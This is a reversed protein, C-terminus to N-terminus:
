APPQPRATQRRSASRSRPLRLTALMGLGLLGVLDLAGGGGRPPTPAPTPTTVSLVASAQTNGSSDSCSLTYTDTGADTPSVSLTGSTAENGNWAGSATCTTANTSSWSLTSNQGLTVSAPNVAITVTPVPPPSNVTLMASANASGGAGTCSLTYTDTGAASPTVSLTGSTAEGGTWAGSATCATANTSSWTLTASQGAVISMPNVGITVTPVPPPPSNVTLMASANASGGAGTCSLTYTDTGAATPTVSLTGGTAESGTWAGSATCVTANTSVWTLAANQGLVISTPNVGLTVTPPPNGNPTVTLTAAASVTANTIPDLCTLTYTYTGVAAPTVTQTGDVAVGGSWAGSSTCSTSQGSAWTLTASQGLMIRAPAVAITVPSIKVAFADTSGGYSGQIPNLTPFNSGASGAIYINGTTDVAIGNAVDTSSSGGLPSSFILASGSPNLESVFASGSQQLPNQTPVLLGGVTYGAIYADGSSDLAIANPVAGFYTSYIFATGGPALVSVFGDGTNTASYPSHTPFDTAQTYGGVYANGSGDVAIANAQGVSSGSLYTSYVLASASPNFEAVFGVFGFVNNNTAQIPNKTPLNSSSTEGAIYADGSSDVAVALAEEEGSGGFYTSYVLASGDPTFKSIICTATNNANNTSQFPNKLPFGGLSNYGAVYASGAADVAISLGDENEPGGLYTSYILASGSPNLKTVFIDLGGGNLAQFPNQTPFDPANTEGTVYANGAADVAVANGYTVHCVPLCASQTGLYTSYILATGAPNFKAVFADVGAPNSAERPNQTPFDMSNTTGVVTLSGSPDVAIANGRDTGSGGLYTSYVLVPDIILARSTDYAALKFSVQHLNGRGSFAFRGFVSKRQGDITQYIVPKHQILEGTQTKIRLNGQADIALRNAGRYALRIARPDAGPAVVFDYELQQQNGYYVLDVGPYVDHYRVKAFHAVGTRWKSRDNGLFYNSHGPLLEEGVVAPDNRSGVLRARLIASEDVDNQHKGPAKHLSLVTEGATLFLAYGPGRAVYKVRADTQGQNQEFALPLDSYNAAIRASGDAGFCAPTAILFM